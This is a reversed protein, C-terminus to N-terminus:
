NEWNWLGRGKRQAEKQLELLQDVHMVNPQYTVVKAYGNSVMAGNIYTGDKLYVHALVRKYQDLRQVDYELMVSQDAILEKLYATAEEAYAGKEKYRTARMEPADICLLRIKMGKESGDDVWFTDGDVVRTVPYSELKSLDPQQTNQYAVCGNLFLLFFLIIRM